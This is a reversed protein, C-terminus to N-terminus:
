APMQRVDYITVEDSQYAVPFQSFYAEDVAYDNREYSGVYVYDIGYKQKLEPFVSAPQEFLERVEQERGEYPLGHYFLYSGSGCLINRGTLAAVANNHNGATLFLANPATNKQVFAAAATDGANFLEMDSVVERGLTLVGSLFLVILACAALYQRGRFNKLTAYFEALFKAVIGCTFAFWVFLLKNNDYPNPQFLVFEALFWILLSGGYFIREEKPLRFFALPLLIFLLGLNKVYFWIYSDTENGWNLHIQLFSTSQQFTFALLQPGALVAALLAYKGWGLLVQKPKQQIFAALLYVTSVMGLALFSHTHVLPMCGAIIGLPVFLKPENEFAARRLLFLAPFLLAWGFLTARQPILMDAITNVWRLGLDPVNTPTQYFGTFIRTFAEPNTKWLDLFYWFGFGGGLFFLLAAFCATKERKLWQLFFCYVGVLVLAYALLAPLIMAFRLSAGVTYFTASVSDCLFPYGVQAGPFISYQPPFTQQVSISTVFGLHMPLDGWTSQGGHLAGGELFIYHTYFLYVGLLFLPLLVMLMGRHESLRFRQVQRRRARLAALAGILLCVALALLQSLVTFRLLFSTLAPLWLLLLLGFVGGLWIRFLPKEAPLFARALVYGTVLYACLYLFATVDLLM